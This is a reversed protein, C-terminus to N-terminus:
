KEQMRWYNLVDVLTDRWDICPKWGLHSRARDATGAACPIDVVRMRNPDIQVSIDRESLSIIDLLISEISRSKGSCINFIQGSVINERHILCHTYANCVDRVDLFDRFANLNGVHIIPKKRNAEIKAIQRAFAPIVFEQSQGVGTHNFPRLFVINLGDNILTRLAMEAAAKTAGYLSKPALPANETLSNGTAFTDGYVESSSIALLLSNPAFRRLASGVNLTGWFNVKWTKEPNQQAHVPSAIAALHICACPSIASITDNVLAADTVDFRQTYIQANPFTSRLHKM